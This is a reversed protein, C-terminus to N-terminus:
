ILSCECVDGCFEFRLYSELFCSSSWLYSTRLAQFQKQLLILSFHHVFVLFILVVASLFLYLINFVHRVTNFFFSCAHLRTIYESYLALLLLCPVQLQDCKWTSIWSLPEVRKGSGSHVRWCSLSRKDQSSLIMSADM